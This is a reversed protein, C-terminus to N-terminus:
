TSVVGMTGACRAREVPCQKSFNRQQRFNRSYILHRNASNKEPCHVGLDGGQRRDMSMVLKTKVNTAQKSPVDARPHCSLDMEREDMNM